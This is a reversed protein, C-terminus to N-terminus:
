ILSVKCIEQCKPCTMNTFVSANELEVAFKIVGGEIPCKYREEKIIIWLFGESCDFKHCSATRLNPITVPHFDYIMETHEFCTSNRGLDEFYVNTRLDPIVSINSTCSSTRNEDVQYKELFPCYDYHRPGGYYQTENSPVHFSSDMYQNKTPLETDHRSLQCYGFARESNLCKIEDPKNCFPQIGQGRSQRNRIYELCSKMVFDCGLGKGWTFRNAMSYNVDYIGTDEFYALTINSVYSKTSTSRTMLDYGMIRYSFHNDILEIGQLEDCGFHRRAEKLMKPLRIITKQISFNGRASLWSLTINQVPRPDNNPLRFSYDLDPLDNFLAPHFGLVHAIEHRAINALYQDTSQLTQTENLCFNVEGIFPRFFSLSCSLNFYVERKTNPDKECYTAISAIYERCESNNNTAIILLENPAIGRGEPFSQTKKRNRQEYCASLYDNPIIANHCTRQKMCQSEECYSINDNTDIVNYDNICMRRALLTDGKKVKVILAKEWYGAAKKMAKQIKSYYELNSYTLNYSLIIKLHQPGSSRKVINQSYVGDRVENDAVIKCFEECEVSKLLVLCLCTLLKIYMMFM